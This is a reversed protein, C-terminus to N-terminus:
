SLAGFYRELFNGSGQVVFVGATLFSYTLDYGPTSLAVTHGMKM